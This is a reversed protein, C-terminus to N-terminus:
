PTAPEASGPAMAALTRTRFERPTQGTHKRFFRTFYAEDVFGLHDAVQKISNRTYVLERQAEHVIRANIVELSSHGLLERCLRTLQGPSIGLHEAYAQLPWRQRFHADVLSRFREIQQAKRSNAHPGSGQQLQQVRAIQVLVAMLLSLGAAVQGLACARAEREVALFLPMLNDLAREQGQLSLVAPRRLTQLLEPMVVAALSELPRQAATVVPGDVDPTFHFGHVTQAPVLLLCPAQVETRSHDIFVEGGGRQLLLIQLFAGHTHPKIDFNYPVSRQPIWEFDFGAEWGPPDQDGYLAYNPIIRSM